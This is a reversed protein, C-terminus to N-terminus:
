GKPVLQCSVDTPAARDGCPVGRVLLQPTGAAVAAINWASTSGPALYQSHGGSALGTTGDPLAMRTTSLVDVGPLHDPDRGFRASDAVVDDGTELVRVHGTPLHLQRLDNVGLGPSGFAVLDDVGTNAGALALGATPSGYSHAWVTLQPQQAPGRSADLGNAFSALPPAGAEAARQLLVSRGPEIIDNWQPAEYGMWTVAAVDRGDGHTRSQRRALDTMQGMTTDYRRVDGNVTTTLGGVFVAVHGARDVDGVSVAAKTLRGSTDVLLLQRIRDDRQSVVARLARVSALQAVVRSSQEVWPNGAPLLPPVPGAPPHLRAQEQVLWTEARDLLMRNARDRAWAPVGDAPGILEPRELIVREQESSTLLGWWAASDWPTWGPGGLAAPVLPLWPDDGNDAAAWVQAVTGGGSAAVLGSAADLLAARLRADVEAARQLLQELDARVVWGARERALALLQAAAPDSPAPWGPVAVLQGDETIALGQGRAVEEADAALRLIGAVQEAARELAAATAAVAAVLRRHEQTVETHRAQASAAAEGDWTATERPSLTLLAGLAELRSSNAAVSRACEAVVDARWCRLDGFSVTM